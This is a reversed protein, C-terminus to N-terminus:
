LTELPWFAITGNEAGTVIYRGDPSFCLTCIRSDNNQLIDNLLLYKKTGDVTYIDIDMATHQRPGRTAVLKNDASFVSAFVSLETEGLLKRKETDWIFVSDGTSNWLGSEVFARKGDVSLWCHKTFEGTFQFIERSQNVSWVRAVAGRAMLGANKDLPELTLFLDGDASCSFSTFEADKEYYRRTCKGSGIDYVDVRHDSFRFARKGNPSIRIKNYSHSRTDDSFFDCLSPIKSLSRLKNGSSADYVLVADSIDKFVAIPGAPGFALELGYIRANNALDLAYIQANTALEVKTVLRDNTVDWCAVSVKEHKNKSSAALDQVAAALVYKSDPSVVIKDVARPFLKLHRVNPECVIVELSRVVKAQTAAEEAAIKETRVYPPSQERAPEQMPLPAVKSPKSEALTSQDSEVTVVPASPRPTRPVKVM